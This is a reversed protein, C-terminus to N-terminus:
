TEDHCMECLIHRDIKVCETDRFFDELMKETPGSLEVSHARAVHPVLAFACRDM